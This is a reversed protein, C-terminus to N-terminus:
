TMREAAPVTLRGKSTAACISQVTIGACKGICCRNDWQQLAETIAEGATAEAHEGAYQRM